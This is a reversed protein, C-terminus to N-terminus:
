VGSNFRCSETRDAASPQFSTPQFQSVAAVRLSVGATTAFFADNGPLPM